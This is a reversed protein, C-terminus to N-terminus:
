RGRNMWAILPFLPLGWVIGAVGYFALQVAWNQPLLGGLTAVLVVYACLFGLIGLLGIFKRARASM